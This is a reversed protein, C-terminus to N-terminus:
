FERKIFLIDLMGCGEKEYKKFLYGYFLFKFVRIFYNLRGLRLFYIVWKWFIVEVYFFIDM